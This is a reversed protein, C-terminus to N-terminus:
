QLRPRKRELRRLGEGWGKEWFPLLSFQSWVCYEHSRSAASWHDPLILLQLRLMRPCQQEKPEAIEIFQKKIVCHGAGAFQLYSKSRTVFLPAIWYGHAPHRVM